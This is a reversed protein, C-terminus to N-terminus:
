TYQHGAERFHERARDVDLEGDSGAFPVEPDQGNWQLSSPTWDTGSLPVAAPEGYGGFVDSALATKDLLGAIARRFRPNGLPGERVNYGVHYFSATQTVQLQLDSARGIRSVVSPGVSTVTADAEDAALLEIATEDSPVVRVDLEDFPAGGAFPGDVDASADALFHDDFRRLVLTQEAVRREFQLPGSGIPEPNSWVLAETIGDAIDVGAVDVTTARSEWEHAPLIPVTFARRAVEPTTDGFEFQLTREDVAEVAELLSIRGRFRPAPVRRDANGLATDTLFRYTFAVDEATLPNGDHWRLDERLRVTAGGSEDWEWDTALWPDLDGDRPQALPDYLLETFAEQNRFEVSLPNFNRTIRDDTIVTRLTSAAEIPELRLFSLPTTPDFEAWGDFRDTRTAGVYEPNILVTFPQERAIQRQVEFVATRRRAGTTTRQRELEEDMSLDSYGFPNQWGPEGAFQSHLLPRLFDPENRDPARAVYIDFEHNILIERYLEDRTLLDIEVDIGVSELNTALTRAIETAIQDSDAPVTKITLSIQNTPSRNAVTRARQLCGASLGAAIAGLLPRRPVPTDCSLQM